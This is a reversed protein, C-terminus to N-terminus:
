PTAPEWRLPALDVAVQWRYTDSENFPRISYSVGRELKARDDAVFRAGFAQFSGDGTSLRLDSLQVRIEAHSPATLVFNHGARKDFARMQNYTGAVWERIAILFDVNSRQLSNRDVWGPLTPSDAPYLGVITVTQLEALPAPPNDVHANAGFHDTVSILRYPNSSSLKPQGAPYNFFRMGWTAALPADSLEACTYIHTLLGFYHADLIPQGLNSYNLRVWHHDIYVENFMHDIFGHAGDLAARVTERVSNHHIGPYFDRAQREDNPDFPPICVVIRTPIGLARFITSLYVASSTCAGHVKNYFMSRGLIEQDFMKADSWTGDPKEHDFAPRLAPYVAPEGDPFYVCWIAFANTSHARKMAWRSVQRVLERDTLKDPDINAAHLEALLDRQMAENWNEAPGPKLYETMGADDRRWNPNEGILPRHLPYYTVEVTTSDTDQSVVRVDQFDDNMDAPRVPDVVQIVSTITYSDEKAPHRTSRDSLSAGAPLDEACAPHAAFGLVTLAVWTFPRM